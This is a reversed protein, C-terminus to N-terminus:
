SPRTEACDLFLLFLSSFCPFLSRLCFYRFALIVVSFAAVIAIVFVVVGIILRRQQLIRFKKGCVNLWQWLFELALFTILTMPRLSPALSSILIIERRSEFCCWSLEDVFNFLYLLKPLLTMFINIEYQNEVNVFRYMCLSLFIYIYNYSERLCGRICAHLYTGRARMCALACM